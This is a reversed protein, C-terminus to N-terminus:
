TFTSKTSHDVVQRSPHAGDWDWERAEGIYEGGVEVRRGMEGNVRSKRRQKTIVSAGEWEGM